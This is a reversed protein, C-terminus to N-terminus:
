TQELNKENLLGSFYKLILPIFKYCKMSHLTTKSTSFLNAKM